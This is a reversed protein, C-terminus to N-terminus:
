RVYSLVSRVRMNLKGIANFLFNNGTYVIVDAQGGARRYNAVEQEDIAIIVPMRQPDRLWGSRSQIKPLSGPNTSTGGDVGSGLSRVKGHFIKGPAADLIFEVPDGKKIRALNNERMNAQIWVDRDSIFTALPQGAQAYFGVDVNFSEVVGRYPAHVTSFALDLQAQELAAIAARIQPNGPGANGLQEKAKELDAESSAVRESAQALATETRDWDAQSLAGPNETRVQQTRNYNRQARDLQAHAVGLRAAAAKVTASGAGVSQTALELNAEATDIALLLPRQDLVFLTSDVDVVSHLRVNVQSLFGSVRPTLPVTLTSIRAQDTYPTLRDAILYWVFLVACLILVARTVTRVPDKKAGKGAAKEATPMTDSVEESM